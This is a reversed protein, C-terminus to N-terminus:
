WADSAPFEPEPFEQLLEAVLFALELSQMHNLRPDCLTEYNKELAAEDIHESGGLCETVDDGTLEVHIG